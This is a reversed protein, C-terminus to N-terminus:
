EVVEEELNKQMIDIYKRLQLIDDKSMGRYMREDNADFSRTSLHALERGKDTIYVLNNRLDNELPVRKVYGSDELKKVTVAVAAASVSLFQAIQVQTPANEGCRSIYMLMKHPSHHIGFSKVSADCRARHTRLLRIIAGTTNRLLDDGM